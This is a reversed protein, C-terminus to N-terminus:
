RGSKVIPWARRFGDRRGVLWYLGDPYGSLNIVKGAERVVLQGLPNWVEFEMAACDCDVQFIGGSPNPYVRVDMGAPQGVGVVVVPTCASTDTCPGSTIVVAYGGTVLPTFSSDVAGPIAAMGSDCNVWQYQAGGQDAILMNGVVTVGTDVTTIALDLTVLSDCGISNTLAQTYIGTATYTQANLVYYECASVTLTDASGQNVTLDLTLVSDCGASNTLTQVYIGTVTYTQANLTYSDCSSVILTDASRHGVTLDLTVISDCGGSNEFVVTYNGTATYTVGRYVFSDCASETAAAYTNGTQCQGLKLAFKDSGGSQTVYYTGPGPDFDITGILGGAGLINREADIAISGIDVMNNGTGMVGGAWEYGGASDLKWVFGAQLPSPPAVVNAV